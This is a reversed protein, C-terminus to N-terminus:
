KDTDNTLADSRGARRQQETVLGLLARADAAAGLLYRVASFPLNQRKELHLGGALFDLLVPNGAVFVALQEYPRGVPRKLALSDDAIQPLLSGTM